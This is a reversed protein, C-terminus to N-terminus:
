SDIKLLLDSLIYCRIIYLIYSLINSLEGYLNINDFHFYQKCSGSSKADLGYVLIMKVQNDRVFDVVMFM